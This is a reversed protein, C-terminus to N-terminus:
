PASGARLQEGETRRAAHEDGPLHFDLEPRLAPDGAVAAPERHRRGLQARKTRGGPHRQHAVQGLAATSRSFLLSKQFNTLYYNQVLVQTLRQYEYIETSSCPNISSKQNQM